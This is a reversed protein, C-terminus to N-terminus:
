IKFNQHFFQVLNDRLEKQIEFCYIKLAKQLLLDHIIINSDQLCSAARYSTALHPILPLSPKPLTSPSYHVSPGCVVKSDSLCSFPSLSLSISFGARPFHTRACFNFKYQLVEKGHIGVKKRIGRTLVLSLRVLFDVSFKTKQATIIQM